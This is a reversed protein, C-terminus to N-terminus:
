AARRSTARGTSSTPRRTWSTPSTPASDSEKPTVAETIVVKDGLLPQTRVAIDKSYSTNDHM